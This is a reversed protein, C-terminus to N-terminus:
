RNVILLTGSKTIKQTKSPINCSYSTQWYYVGSAVLKDQYTGNWSLVPDQSVFVKKGWRDYINLEFSAPPTSFELSLGDNIGDSNNTLVNPVIVECDCSASVVEVRELTEYCGWEGTVSYMGAQEVKLDKGVDGTSWLYSLAGPLASLVIGQDECVTTDKQFILREPVKIENVVLADQVLCGADEIFATYVGPRAVRISPKREGTSWQLGDIVPTSGLTLTDGECLVQAAGLDFQVPEKYAVRITDKVICGNEKVEVFYTGTQRVTYVQSQSQDQWKYTAGPRNVNLSLTEGPCLSTDKGLDVVADFNCPMVSVDDIYYYVTAWYEEREPVLVRTTNIDDYFNGLMLYKEGGKALYTGSITYWNDIDDLIEGEPNRMSPKIRYVDQFEFAEKSLYAGLDDSLYSTSDAPSAKFEIIYYKGAELSDKLEISLYERYTFGVDDGQIWTRIGAYGEGSATEQFGMFNDPIDVPTNNACKGFVDSSAGNPSNWGTAREIQAWFTPCVGLTEFGSNPVLNQAYMGRVLLLITCLFALRM